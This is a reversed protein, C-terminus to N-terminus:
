WNYYTGWDSLDNFMSQKVFRVPINRNKEVLLCSYYVPTTPLDHDTGTSYMKGDRDKYEVWMHTIKYTENNGVVVMAQYGKAIFLSYLAPACNPCGDGARLTINRAVV